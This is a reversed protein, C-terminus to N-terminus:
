TEHRAYRVQKWITAEQKEWLGGPALSDHQMASAAGKCPDPTLQVCALHMQASGLYSDAPATAKKEDQLQFAPHPLNM